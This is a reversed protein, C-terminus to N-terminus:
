PTKFAELRQAIAAWAPSRPDVVAFHDVGELEMLECRDGAAAAARAYARSQAIPVRDDLDGHVLLVDKGTPLKTMPDAASYAEPREEPTGGTLELAAGEGIRERAASALDCVGALSVVTRVAPMSAACLGLHGGASHGIVVLRGRELPADLDNLAEIAARVDDITQPVGGGNGVRRYEVNWCAWGRATLDAGVASMISRGFQARWFGGHLLVAVPHPGRQGDPLWLDALHEPDTGYRHPDSTRGTAAAWESLESLFAQLGRAAV